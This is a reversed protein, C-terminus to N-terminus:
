VSCILYSIFAKKCDGVEEATELTERENDEITEWSAADDGVESGGAISEDDDRDVVYIAQPGVQLFWFPLM